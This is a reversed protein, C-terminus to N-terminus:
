LPHCLNKSLAPRCGLTVPVGDQLPLRPRRPRQRRIKKVLREGLKRLAEPSRGFREAMKSYTLREWYRARLIAREARTLGYMAKRLWRRRRHRRKAIRALEDRRDRLEAAKVGELSRECDVCRCGRRHYRRFDHFNHMAIGMLWFVFEDVTKGEFHEFAKIADVYTLQMLDASDFKARLENPIHSRLWRRLPEEILQVAEALADMSGARARELLPTFIARKEDTLEAIRM